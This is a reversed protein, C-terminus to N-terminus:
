TRIQAPPAPRGTNRGRGKKLNSEGDIRWPSSKVYIINDFISKLARILIHGWNKTWKM